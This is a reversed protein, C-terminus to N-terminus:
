SRGEAPCKDCRARVQSDNWIRVTHGCELTADCSDFMHHTGKGIDVIKRLPGKRQKAPNMNLSGGHLSHRESIWGM